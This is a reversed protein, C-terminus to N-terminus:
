AVAEANIELKRLRELAEQQEPTFSTGQPQKLMEVVEALPEGRKIGNAIDEDREREWQQRWTEVKRIERAAAASELHERHIAECHARIDVPDPFFKSERIAKSLGAQFTVMGFKLAM